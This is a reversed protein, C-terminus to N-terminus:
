PAQGQEAAPHDCTGDDGSSTDTGGTSDYGDSTSPDTTMQAQYHAIKADLVRLLATDHKIRDAVQQRYEIFKAMREGLLADGGRRLEALERMQQISMQSRRLYRLFEIWEVDEDRYRRHGQVDREVPDILGEREYYRLADISLGTREALEGILLGGTVM